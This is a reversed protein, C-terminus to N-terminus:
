HGTGNCSDVRTKSSSWLPKPTRYATAGFRRTSGRQESRDQCEDHVPQRSAQNAERVGCEAESFARLGSDAGADVEPFSIPLDLPSHDSVLMGLSNRSAVPAIALGAATEVVRFRGPNGNSEHQQLVTELAKSVSASAAPHFLALSTPQDLTVMLRSARPSLTQSGPHGKLFETIDALESEDAYASVDEYSIPVGYNKTLMEAAVALPRPADVPVEKRSLANQAIATGVIGILWGALALHVLIRSFSM